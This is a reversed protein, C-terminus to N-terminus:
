LFIVGERLTTLANSLSQTHDVPQKLLHLAL